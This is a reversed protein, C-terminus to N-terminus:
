RQSADPANLQQKLRELNAAMEKVAHPRVALPVILRGIGHGEFDAIISVRSRRGDALGEVSIDLTARVGGTVQIRPNRDARKSSAVITAQEIHSVDYITLGGQRTGARSEGCISRSLMVSAVSPTM